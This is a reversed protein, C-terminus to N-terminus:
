GCVVGVGTSARLSWLSVLPGIWKLEFSVEFKVVEQWKELVALIIKVRM